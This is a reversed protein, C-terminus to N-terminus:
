HLSVQNILRIITKLLEEPEFPKPCMESIGVEFARKSIDPLHSATMGIIPLKDGRERLLRTTEYGDLVPMQFDMLAIQHRFTDLKQLAEKGNAAMETKAGWKRLYKDLVFGNLPNDDVVLVTVGHLPKTAEADKTKKSYPM